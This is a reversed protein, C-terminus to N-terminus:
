AYFGTGTPRSPQDPTISRQARIAYADKTLENPDAINAKWGLRALRAQELDEIELGYDKWASFAKIWAKKNKLPIQGTKNYYWDAYHLVNDNFL